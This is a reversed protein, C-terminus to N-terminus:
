RGWKEEAEPPRVYHPLVERADVYGARQALAYGLEYVVAARALWLAEPLVTVTAAAVVEGYVGAGEGLVAFGAPLGALWEAPDHEAPPTIAHYGDDAREFRAAYIHQRHANILVGLEAPPDPLQLANQAIVALTPVPRVLAGQAFALMRAVTVSVRLGTFSGPGASVYVARVEAAAIGQGRVLEHMVPLLDSAHRRPRDLAREAVVQGARGLAVSGLLSSTELALGWGPEARRKALPQAAAPSTSRTDEMAGAM